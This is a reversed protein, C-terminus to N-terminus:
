SSSNDACRARCFTQLQKRHAETPGLGLRGLIDFAKDYFEKTRTVITVFLDHSLHLFFQDPGYSWHPVYNADWGFLM